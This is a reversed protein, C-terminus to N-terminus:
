IQHVMGHNPRHGANLHPARSLRALGLGFVAGEEKRRRPVLSRRSPSPRLAAWLYQPALGLSFQKSLEPDNAVAEWSIFM